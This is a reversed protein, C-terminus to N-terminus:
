EERGRALEKKMTLSSGERGVIAFGLRQYLRRAPNEDSVSLSVAAHRASARELLANLLRTGVGKGRHEPTIAISLEPTLEDIYGYGRGEGQLLRLWAAGVPQQTDAILAKVGDDNAQGWSQV